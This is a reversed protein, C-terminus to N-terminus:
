IIGIKQFNKLNVQYTKKDFKLTNKPKYINYTLRALKLKIYTTALYNPAYLDLVTIDEQQISGNMM